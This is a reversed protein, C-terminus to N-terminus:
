HQMDDLAELIRRAAERPSPAHLVESVVAVGAAGHLQSVRDATVGGLAFCPTSHVRAEERFREPNLPSRSDNAKSRPAFVPSVLWVDAGCPPPGPPHWAASLWGAKLFPRFTDPAPSREPLHLHAGLALAVDLRRNIFLPVGPCQAALVLAQQYFLAGTAAPHRHQIAIGPGAQLADQIREVCDHLAWDTILM